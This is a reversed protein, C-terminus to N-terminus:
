QEAPRWDVVPTSGDDCVWVIARMGPKLRGPRTEIRKWDESKFEEGRMLFNRAADEDRPFRLTFNETTDEDTRIRIYIRGPQRRYALIRGTFSTLHDRSCRLRAPPAARQDNVYSAATPMDASLISCICMAAALYLKM